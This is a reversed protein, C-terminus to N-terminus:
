LLIANLLNVLKNYQINKDFKMAINYSNTAMQKRLTTHTALMNLANVFSCVNGPEYNIGLKNVEIFEKLFQSSNIIPLGAATYDYLKVPWATSEKHYPCIGIDCYKYFQILEEYQLKGLYVLNTLGNVTIFNMIEERFIGDGIIFIKINNEKKLYLAANLLTKIDYNNNLSGAYIAWIDKSTKQGIKLKIEEPLENDRDMLARFWAVDIGNFITVFPRDKKFPVKKKLVEFFIESAAIIADAQCLNYRRLLYFIYFFASGVSRFLSPLAIVFIEPWLDIIDLILKANFYKSLKVSLLGVIQPPDAGIICVPPSERLARRYVNWAYRLEFKIRKISINKKYECTPVLRIIFYPNIEIDVWDKSRFKKFHHSFNATWWIVRYNHKSLIDGIVTYRYDCWGEGPIPGYPNILWVTKM